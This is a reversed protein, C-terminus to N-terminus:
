MACLKVVQTLPELQFFNTYLIIPEFRCISLDTHPDSAQLQQVAERAKTQHDLNANNRTLTEAVNVRDEQAALHLSTLGSQTICM